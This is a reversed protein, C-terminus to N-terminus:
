FKGKLILDDAIKQFETSKLDFQETWGTKESKPGYIGVKSKFIQMPEINPAIDANNYEMYIDSRKSYFMARMKLPAIVNQYLADKTEKASEGGTKAESIDLITEKGSATIETVLMDIEGSIKYVNGNRVILGDTKKAPNANMWSKIDTFGTKVYIKVGQRFVYNKGFINYEQKKINFLLEEGIKGKIASADKTAIANKIEPRTDFSVSKLYDVANNIRNRSAYAAGETELISQISNQKKGSRAQEEMKRLEDLKYADSKGKWIGEEFSKLGLLADNSRLNSKFIQMGSGAQQTEAKLASEALKFNLESIFFTKKGSIEAVYLGDSVKKMTGGQKKVLNEFKGFMGPEFIVIGQDFGRAGIMNEPKSLEAYLGSSSFGPSEPYFTLDGNGTKVTVIGNVDPGTVNSAGYHDKIANIADKGTSTSPGGKYTYTLGGVELQNMGIEAQFRAEKATALANDIATVEADIDLKAKDVTIDKSNKIEILLDRKKNLANVQKDLTSIQKKTVASTKQSLIGAAEDQLATLRTEMESINKLFRQYRQMNGFKLASKNLPRALVTGAELLAVSLFTRFLLLNLDHGTPMKGTQVIYTVIEVGLFASTTASIRTVNSANRLVQGLGRFVGFFILNHVFRGGLKDLGFWNEDPDIVGKGILQDFGEQLITYAAAGALVEVAVFAATGEVFFAAAVATGIGASIIILAVSAVVLLATEIYDYVRQQQAQHATYNVYMLERSSNLDSYRADNMPQSADEGASDEHPFAKPKISFGYFDYTAERIQNGFEGAMELPIIEGKEIDSSMTNLETFSADIKSKFWDLSVGNATNGLIVKWFSNDDNFVAEAKKRDDDELALPEFFLRKKRDDSKDIEIYSYLYATLYTRNESLSKLRDIAIKVIELAKEKAYIYIPNVAVLQINKALNLDSDSKILSAFQGKAQDGMGRDLEIEIYRLLLKGDTGNNNIYQVIPNDKANDSEINWADKNEFFIEKGRFYGDDILRTRGGLRLGLAIIEVGEFSGLDLDDPHFDKASLVSNYNESMVREIEEKDTSFYGFFGNKHRFILGSEGEANMHDLAHQAELFFIEPLENEFGSNRFISDHIGFVVRKETLFWRLRDNDLLSADGTRKYNAIAYFDSQLLASVRYKGDNTETVIANGPIKQYKEMEISATDLNETTLSPMAQNFDAITFSTFPAMQMVLMIVAEYREKFSSNFNALIPDIKEIGDKLSVNGSKSSLIQGDEYAIGVPNIKDKVIAKQYIAVNDQYDQDFYKNLNWKHIEDKTPDFGGPSNFVDISYEIEVGHDLLIRFNLIVHIETKIGLSIGLLKYNDESSYVRKEYSILKGPFIKSKIPINQKKESIFIDDLAEKNDLGPITGKPLFIRSRTRLKTHDFVKGYEQDYAKINLDILEDLTLNYKQAIGWLSKFSGVKIIDYDEFAPQIKEASNQVTHTLEHALLKKGEKSEPNYNGEKFFIDQGHTFAKAGIGASMKNATSGTHVKVSSLDAGLRGEFENKTSNDLKVGQGKTENLLTELEPSAHVAGGETKPKLNSRTAFFDPLEAINNDSAVAESVKDAQIESADGPQSIELKARIEGGNKLLSQFHPEILPRIISLEDEQRFVKDPVQHDTQKQEEKRRLKESYRKPNNM